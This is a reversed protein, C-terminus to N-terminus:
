FIEAVRCEAGDLYFDKGLDEIIRPMHKPGYGWTEYDYNGNTMYWINFCAAKCGKGCVCCEFGNETGTYQGIHEGGDNFRYFHGIVLKAM